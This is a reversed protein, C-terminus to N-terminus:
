VAGRTKSTEGDALMEFGIMTSLDASLFPDSKNRYLFDQEEGQRILSLYDSGSYPAVSSLAANQSPYAPAFTPPPVADGSGGMWDVDSVDLDFNRNSRYANDLLSQGSDMQSTMIDLDLDSWEMNGFLSDIADFNGNTCTPEPTVFCLDMKQVNDCVTHQVPLSNGSKSFAAATRSNFPFTNGATSFTSMDIEPGSALDSCDSDPLFFMRKDDDDDDNCNMSSEKSNSADLRDDCIPLM